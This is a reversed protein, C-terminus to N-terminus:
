FAVVSFLNIGDGLVIMLAELRALQIVDVRPLSIDGCV